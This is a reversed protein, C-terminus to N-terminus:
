GPPHLFAPESIGPGGGPPSKKHAVVRVLGRRGLENLGGASAERVTGESVAAEAYLDVPRVFFGV